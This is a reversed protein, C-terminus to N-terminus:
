LFVHLASTDHNYTHKALRFPYSLINLQGKNFEAFTTVAKVSDNKELKIGTSLELSAAISIEQKFGIFTELSELFSIEEKLGLYMEFSQALSFSESVSLTGEIKHGMYWSGSSGHHTELLDGRFHDEAKGYYEATSNGFFKETATGYHEVNDDGYTINEESKNKLTFNNCKMTIDRDPGADIIIGGETMEIRSPKSDSNIAAIKYVGSSINAQDGKGNVHRLKANKNIASRLIASKIIKDKPKADNDPYAANIADLFSQHSSYEGNFTRVKTKDAETIKLATLRTIETDFSPRAYFYVKPKSENLDAINQEIFVNEEDLTGIITDITAADLQFKLDTRADKLLVDQNGNSEEVLDGSTKIKIGDTVDEDIVPNIDLINLVITKTRKFTLKDTAKPTSPPTTVLKWKIGAILYETTNNLISGLIATGIKYQKSSATYLVDFDKILEYILSKGNNLLDNTNVTAPTILCWKGTSDTYASISAGKVVTYVDPPDNPAGIRVWSNSTPTEMIIREKGKKDEMRIRNNGGTQIVSETQNKDSVPSPTELNSIAGAIVPKDPDGDIFSLLVETGKTLPFQMGGKQNAYPQMMRLYTSAKGDQHEDNIDFPLRVKYRGQDDLEAYQGSGEADIIAHLTGSIRPKATKHEPRYQVDSPIASFSNRYYVSSKYEKLGVAIEPILYGIQNCDHSVSEVLYKQNFSDRFHNELKFTYGPEMFPATSDGVFERKRCNIAEAHIQALRNGEETSPFNADYLYDTGRGREDVEAMGLISQSTCQKNHGRLLIRRPLQRVRCTFSNVIETKDAEILGSDPAYHVIGDNELSTHAILTDTFIIKEVSGTQDFYYYIGERELWRSIFDLHNENYQCVYDIKEYKKKLRFEFDLSTLGADCLALEIIEPVSKDLCVQNHHTLSLWWLRPVLFARYFIYNNNKHLQEFEALMGHFYVDDGNERHITFKAPVELIEDLDIDPNDSVLMIEFEYPKSIGEVGKIQIVGFTEEDLSLANSVFSFKKEPLYKGV